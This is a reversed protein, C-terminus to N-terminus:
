YFHIWRQDRWSSVHLKESLDPNTGILHMAALFGRVLPLVVTESRVEGEDCEKQLCTQLLTQCNGDFQYAPLHKSRKVVLLNTM